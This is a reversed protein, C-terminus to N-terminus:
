LSKNKKKLRGHRHDAEEEDLYVKRLNVSLLVEPVDAIETKKLEIRNGLLFEWTMTGFWGFRNGPNFIKEEIKKWENTTKMVEFYDNEYPQYICNYEGILQNNIVWKDLLVYKDGSDVAGNWDIKITKRGSTSFDFHENLKIHHVVNPELTKEYVIKDDFNIKLTHEALDHFAKLQTWVPLTHKNSKM